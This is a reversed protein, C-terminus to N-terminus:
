SSFVLCEDGGGQPNRAVATGDDPDLRGAVGLQGVTVPVTFTVGGRGNVGERPRATSYVETPGQPPCTERPRWVILPPGIEERPHSMVRLRGQSDTVGPTTRITPSAQPAATAASLVFTSSAVRRTSCPALCIPCPSRPGPKLSSNMPM